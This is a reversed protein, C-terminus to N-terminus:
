LAEVAAKADGLSGGAEERWLKIAKIKENALMLAKCRTELSPGPNLREYAAVVESPNYKTIEALLTEAGVKPDLLIGIAKAYYNM